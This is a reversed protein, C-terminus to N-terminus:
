ESHSDHDKPTSEATWQRCAELDDHNQVSPVPSDNGLGDHDTAIIEADGTPGFGLTPAPEVEIMYTHGARMRFAYTLRPLTAVWGGAISDVHGARGGIEVVHCGPLLEFVSGLSAVNNGDVVTVPGILVAANNRERDPASSSYLPVGRPTRQACSVMSSVLVVM